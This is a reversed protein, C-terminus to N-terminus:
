RDHLLVFIVESIILVNLLILIIGGCIAGVQIDLAHTDIFMQFSTANEANTVFQLSLNLASPVSNLDLDFTVTDPKSQGDSSRVIDFYKIVHMDHEIQANITIYDNSVNTTKRFPGILNVSIKSGFDDYLYNFALPILHSYNLLIQVISHALLALKCKTENIELVVDYKSLNKEKITLMHWAVFAWIVSFVIYKILNFKSVRKSDFMVDIKQQLLENGASFADETQSIFM